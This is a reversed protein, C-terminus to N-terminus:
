MRRYITGGTYYPVRYPYKVGIVGVPISTEAVTEVTGTPEVMTGPEATTIGLPSVTAGPFGDHSGPDAIAGTALGPVNIASFNTLENRIATLLEGTTQKKLIFWYALFGGLVLWGTM